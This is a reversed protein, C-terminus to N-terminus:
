LCHQEHAKGGVLVFIDSRGDYEVQFIGVPIYWRKVRKTGARDYNGGVEMADSVFSQIQVMRILCLPNSDFLWGLFLLRLVTTEGMAAEIRYVMGKKKMKMIGKFANWSMKRMGCLYFM